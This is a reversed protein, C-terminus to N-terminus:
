VTQCHRAATKVPKYHMFVTWRTFTNISLIVKITHATYYLPLITGVDFQM